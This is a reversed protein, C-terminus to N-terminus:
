PYTKFPAPAFSQYDLYGDGCTYTDPIFTPNVLHYVPDDHCNRVTRMTTPNLFVNIPDYNINYAIQNKDVQLDLMRRRTCETPNEFYLSKYPISCRMKAAFNSNSWQVTAIAPVGCDQEYCVAEGEDIKTAPWEISNDPFETHCVKCGLSQDCTKCKTEFEDCSKCYRNRDVITDLNL